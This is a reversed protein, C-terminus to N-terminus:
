EGPEPTVIEVVASDGVAGRNTFPDEPESEEPEPTEDPEPRSEMMARRQILILLEDEALPDDLLPAKGNKQVRALLSFDDTTSAMEGDFGAQVLWWLLTESTFGTRHFMLSHGKAMYAAGYILDLPRIFEGSRTHYMTECARGDAIWRAAEKLDPVAVILDGDPKLIRRLEALVLHLDTEPVHELVHGCYVADASEDALEPMSRCDAVVDPNM